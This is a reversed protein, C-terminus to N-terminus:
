ARVIIQTSKPHPFTGLPEAITRIHPMYFVEWVGAGLELSEGAFEGQKGIQTHCVWFARSLGDINEASFTLLPYLYLFGCVYYSIVRVDKPHHMPASFLTLFCYVMTLNRTLNPTGAHVFHVEILSNVAEEVAPTAKLLNCEGVTEIHEKIVKTAADKPFTTLSDSDPPTASM